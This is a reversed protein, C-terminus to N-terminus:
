LEKVGRDREEHNLPNLYLNAPEVVEEAESLYCAREHQIVKVQEIRKKELIHKCM